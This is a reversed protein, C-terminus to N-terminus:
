SQFWLPVSACLCLSSQHASLRFLAVSDVAKVQM